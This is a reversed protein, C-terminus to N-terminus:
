VAHVRLERFPMCGIWGMCCGHLSVGPAPASADSPVLSWGGKGDAGREYAWVENTGCRTKDPKEIYGGIM